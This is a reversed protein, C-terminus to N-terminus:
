SDETKRERAELEQERLRVRDIVDQSPLDAFRRRRLAVLSAFLVAAALLIALIIKLM